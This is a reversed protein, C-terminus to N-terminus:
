MACHMVVCGRQWEICCLAHSIHAICSVRWGGVCNPRGLPAQGRPRFIKHKFHFAFLYASMYVAHPQM